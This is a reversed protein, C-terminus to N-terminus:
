PITRTETDLESQLKPSGFHRFFRYLINMYFNDKLIFILLISRKKDKGERSCLSEAKTDFFKRQAFNWFFHTKNALKSVGLGM